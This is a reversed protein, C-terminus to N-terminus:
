IVALPLSDLLFRNPKTGPHYVSKAFVVRGDKGVFRLAKAHVPRIVHPRTGDHHYTAYPADAEISITMVEGTKIGWSLAINNKLYGSHVGVQLKAARVVRNARLLLDRGVIGTESQFVELYGPLPFEILDPMVSEGALAM